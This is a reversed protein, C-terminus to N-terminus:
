FFQRKNMVIYKKVVHLFYLWFLCAFVRITGMESDEFSVWVLYQKCTTEPVVGSTYIKFSNLEARDGGWGGSKILFTFFFFHHSSIANVRKFNLYSPFFFFHARTCVCVTLNRIWHHSWPTPFIFLTNQSLQKIEEQVVM